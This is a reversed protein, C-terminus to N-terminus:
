GEPNPKVSVGSIIYMGEPVSLNASSSLASSNASSRKKRRQGDPVHFGFRTTKGEDLTSLAPASAAFAPNSSSLANEKQTDAAVPTSTAAATDFRSVRHGNRCHEDIGHSGDDRGSLYPTDAQLSQPVFEPAQPKLSTRMPSHSQSRREQSVDMDKRVPSRSQMIKRRMSDFRVWAKDNRRPSRGRVKADMVPETANKDDGDQCSDLGEESGRKQHKKKKLLDKRSEIDSDTVDDVLVTTKEPSRSRSRTREGGTQLRLQRTWLKSYHGSVQMLKDHSGREIIRGDKIVMVLNAHVITSLRHAIVFTTRGACLKKLSEQIVAETESDVSSTAEDLLLIKPDKLIARAIAMRQLEGGSLKVGREGVKESYGKTYSMIKDHLAVAKCADQVEEETADLKAYRLNQLITQNFLVPDQPVCGINERLSELTVHQVDQGDIMVHGSTADYFRFLLKLITSKGGGTEGVLAVTQGPEARFSLNDAVQRKGDYSFSVRDFDVQGQKLVFETAGENNDVTPKTQLLALLKEADVLSKAVRSFGNAFYSLPGTLQAWYTILVVFDGVSKDGKSIQYAALLAAVMLGTQLTWARLATILYSLARYQILKRQSAQVAEKYRNQEYGIRNFYSVTTWSLSSETMQTYEQEWLKIFERQKNTKMPITKATVWLFVVSSLAAIFAMYADFLWYFVTVAIALDAAMPLMEFGITYVLDSLAEGRSVTRWMRGSKKSDHFDASLSMVKDYAHTQLKVNTHQNIPMWLWSQALSIGASSDLFRLLIFITTAVWPVDGRSTRLVDIIIGLQLPVLVNLARCALMCLGLAPFHLQLRLSNRPWLHPLFIAFAKTYVWWDKKLKGRRAYHEDEDDSDEDEDGNKSQNSDKTDAAKSDDGTTTGYANGNVDQAGSTTLHNEIRALLPAIEEDCAKEAGNHIRTGIAVGVLALLLTIRTAQLVSRGIRPAGSLKPALIDAILLATDFFLALTWAPSFIPKINLSSHDIIGFLLILWALSSFLTFVLNDDSSTAAHSPLVCALLISESIYTTLVLATLVLYGARISKGSGKIEEKPTPKKRGFVHALSAIFYAVPVVAPSLVHIVTLMGAGSITRLQTDMVVGGACFRITTHELKFHHSAIRRILGHFANNTNRRV